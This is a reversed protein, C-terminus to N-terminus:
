PIEEKGASESRRTHVRVIGPEHIVRQDSIAANQPDKRRDRRWKSLPSQTLGSLRLRKTPRARVSSAASHPSRLHCLYTGIAVLTNTRLGAMERRRQGEMGLDAGLLTAVSLNVATGPFQGRKCNQASVRV